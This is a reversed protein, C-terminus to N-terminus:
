VYSLACQIHFYLSREGTEVGQAMSWLRSRHRVPTSVERERVSAEVAEDGCTRISLSEALPSTLHSVSEVRVIFPTWYADLTCRTFGDPPDIEIANRSGFGVDDTLGSPM